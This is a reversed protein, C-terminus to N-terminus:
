DWSLQHTDDMWQFTLNGIPDGAREPHARLSGQGSGPSGIRDEVQYYMGSLSSPEVGAGGASEDGTLTRPPEGTRAFVVRAQNRMSQLMAQGEMKRVEPTTTILPIAALGLIAVIIFLGGCGLLVWLWKSKGQSPPPYQPPYQQPHTGADPVHGYDSPLGQRPPVPREGEPPVPDDPDRHGLPADPNERNGPQNM